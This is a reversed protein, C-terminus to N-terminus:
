KMVMIWYIIQLMKILDRWKKVLNKNKFWLLMKWIVM